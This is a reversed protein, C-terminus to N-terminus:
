EPQGAGWPTYPFTSNPRSNSDSDMSQAFGLSSTAALVIFLLSPILRKAIM